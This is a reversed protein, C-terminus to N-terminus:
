RELFARITRSTLLNAALAVLLALLGVALLNDADTLQALRGRNEFLQAGLLGTWALVLAASAVRSWARRLLLGAMCVAHAVCVLLAVLWLTPDPYPFWRQQLVSGFVQVLGAISGAGSALLAVLLAAPWRSPRVGALAISGLGRRYLWALAWIFAHGILWVVVVVPVLVVPPPHGTQPMLVLTVCAIVALTAWVIHVRRVMRRPAADSTSNMGLHSVRQAAGRIRERVPPIPSWGDYM